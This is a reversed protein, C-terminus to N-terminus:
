RKVELEREYLTKGKPGYVSARFKLSGVSATSDIVAFNLTSSVGAMQRPNTAREVFQRVEAHVGKIERGNVDRRTAM